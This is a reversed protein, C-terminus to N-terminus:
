EYVISSFSTIKLIKCEVLKNKMHGGHLTSNADFQVSTSWHSLKEKVVIDAIM